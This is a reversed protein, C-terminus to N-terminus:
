EFGDTLYKLPFTVDFYLTKIKKKRNKQSKRDFTLVDTHGILQQKKVQLRHEAIIEYEDAVSIVVYATQISQGDGSSLIVDMIKYYLDALRRAQTKNGVALHTVALRFTLPMNLPSERFAKEGAKLAKEFKENNYLEYFKEIYENDAYPSYGPQFVSGYYLHQFDIFSLTSDANKYRQLLKPYFFISNSDTTERKISDFDINSIKQAPALSSVFLNILIILSSLYHM